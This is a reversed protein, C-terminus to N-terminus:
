GAREPMAVFQRVMDDMRKLQLQVEHTHMFARMENSHRALQNLNNGIGRVVSLVDDLREALDPPVIYTADLDAFARRKLHTAFREGQKLAAAEMRTYEAPNLNVTVRRMGEERQRERFASMYASRDATAPLPKSKPM